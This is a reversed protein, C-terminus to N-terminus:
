AFAGDILEKQQQEHIKPSGVAPAAAVERGVYRIMRGGVKEAFHSLGGAWMQFVFGWAGMNRPEEQVWLIEKAKSFQGLIGALKAEDFPYIQELRVIAVDKRNLETRKQVLDYYVKGTCILVRQVNAATVSSDSIVTEFQGESLDKLTSIALPHRLLSKPSMVVLPKRFNTKVQRRLAHFIQAPTSLNTVYFNNRAGLQLFRELRASSHEPGQGEYGHPLLLTLGSMRLWKSESSAIFQDIIVQAGNAFDGFQAEWITLANPSALSYGHEFGMVGTESLHSNHVFFPAQNTSLQNLPCLKRGTESDNFVAHRHTFTGREADQGSVRVTHGETVLSAFALSEANGWDIGKGEDIAKQRGEVFRTLKSHLKFDAPIANMKKSLEVLTGASVSTKPSEFIETGSPQKLGKWVGEFSSVKPAPNEAKAENQSVQHNELIRDLIGQSESEALVGEAALRTAYIERPTPHTKIKGYMVPQTFTPEDGENHGYKRYCILDIFVDKKFKQRYEVAFRMVAVVAEPDDGNVHFIPCELMLALDTSFRTSRADKVPTTFGVQNNIVIHISGGTAYGSLQSLNLVEYCVGQGAFAADGHIQIAVTEARATDKRLDQKARAIGSVVANVFELHSPNATLSIHLDKGKRTKLDRSYGKHYKVDGEGKSLDVAYKGEFESFMYKPSKGFTNTLVNLRGRHAMGLVFEKTGLEAGTEFLADLGPILAEGGEISFRKQAVYRTHLFKEFGESDALRTYIWKKTESDFAPQLRRNEIETQLWNRETLDKIQTYEVGIKGSYIERLREIMQRITIASGNGLGKSIQVTKGLDADSLLFTQPLLNPHSDTRVELPNLDGLLYGQERYARLLYYAKIELEWDFSATSATKPSEEPRKSNESLAGKNEAGLEVGEFFFRWSDEVENPNALYQQYIGDIYDANISRLYSFKEVFIRAKRLSDSIDIKNQIYGFFFPDPISLNKRNL